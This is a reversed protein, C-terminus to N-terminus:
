IIPQFVAQGSIPTQLKRRSSRELLYRCPRRSMPLGITEEACPLEAWRKLGM